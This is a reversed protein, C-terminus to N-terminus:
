KDKNMEALMPGFDRDFSTVFEDVAKSDKFEVTYAYQEAIKIFDPNKTAREIADELAPIVYSPMGLPGWFGRIYRYSTVNGLGVEGFTPVDPFNVDRTPSSLVLLRTEGARVMAIAETPQCLRFDIHGGLVATKSAGGGAFPVYQVEIGAEASMQNFVIDLPSGTGPNGCTLKGPNAKAYAVLDAWTKFPSDAKVEVCAIPETTISGIPAMQEWVKETYVKSYYRTIWAENSFLITYGDPKSGILEMTGVKTAGAPINEIVLRVGLEKELSPQFARVIVDSGGGASWPVIVKIPATPYDVAASADTVGQAGITAPVLLVLLLCALVFFSRKM